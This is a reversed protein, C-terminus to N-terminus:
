SSDPQASMQPPMQEVPARVTELNFIGTVYTSAPLRGPFYIMDPSLPLCTRVQKPAGPLRASMFM